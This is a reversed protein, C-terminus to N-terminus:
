PILRKRWWAQQEFYESFHKEFGYFSSSAPLGKEKAYATYDAEDAFTKNTRGPLDCVIFDYEPSKSYQHSVRACLINKTISFSDIHLEDRNLETKNLDPYFYTAAFDPCYIRQGYGIPISPNDGLGTDQWYSFSYCFLCVSFVVHLLLWNRIKHGMRNTLWQNQTKRSILYAVLLVLTAYIASLFVTKLIEAFLDIWQMLM